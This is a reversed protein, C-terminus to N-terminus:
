HLNRQKVFPYGKLSIYYKGVMDAVVHATPIVFEGAIRSDAAFAAFFRGNHPCRYFIRINGKSDTPAGKRRSDAGCTVAYHEFVFDIINDCDVM